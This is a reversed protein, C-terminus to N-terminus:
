RRPGPPCPYAEALARATLATADKRREAPHRELFAVVVDRRTSDDLDDPLCASFDDVSGYSRMDNVVSDLYGFCFMVYAGITANCYRYLSNGDNIGAHAPGACLTAAIAAAAGLRNPGRSLPRRKM